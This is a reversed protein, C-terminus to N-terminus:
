GRWQTVTPNIARMDPMNDGLNESVVAGSEADVMITLVTGTPPPENSPTPGWYTFHGHMTVVDVPSETWPKGTRQDTITPETEGAEIVQAAAGLTSSTEEVGTPSHEGYRAADHLATEVIQAPSPAVETQAAQATAHKTHLALIVTVVGVVVALAALQRKAM